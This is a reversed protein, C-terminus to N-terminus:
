LLTAQFIHWGNHFLQLLVELFNGNEEGFHKSVFVSQMSQFFFKKVIQKSM